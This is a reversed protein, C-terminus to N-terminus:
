RPSWFTRNESGLLWGGSIYTRVPPDGVARERIVEGDAALGLAPVSDDEHRATIFKGGLRNLGRVGSRRARREHREVFDTHWNRVRKAFLALPHGDDEAVEVVFPPQNKDMLKLVCRRM